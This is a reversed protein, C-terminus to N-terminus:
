RLLDGRVLSTAREAREPPEQASARGGSPLVGDRDGPPDDPLRAPEGRLGRDRCQDLEDRRERRLRLSRATKTWGGARWSVVMPLRWTSTRGPASPMPQRTTLAWKWPM